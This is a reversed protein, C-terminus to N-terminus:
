FVSPSELLHSFTKFIYGSTKIKEKEATVLTLIHSVRRKNKKKKGFSIQRTITRETLSIKDGAEKLFRQIYLEKVSLLM